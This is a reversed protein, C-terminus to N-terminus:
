HPFSFLLMIEKAGLSRQCISKGFLPSFFFEKEKATDLLSKIRAVAYKEQFSEGCGFLATEKAKELIPANFRAASAYSDEPSHALCPVDCAEPMVIIDMSGDCADLLELETLFHQESLSYDTSYPPQIICAKM